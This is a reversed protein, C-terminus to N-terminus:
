SKIRLQKLAGVVAEAGYEKKLEMIESMFLNIRNGFPPCVNSQCINKVDGSLSKRRNSNWISYFSNNVTNGFAVAGQLTNHDCLYMNGDSGITAMFHQLYCGRDCTWDTHSNRKLADPSHISCVSFENPRHYDSKAKEMQSFAEKLWPTKKDYSASIDFKLRVMDAGADKVLGATKYIEHHNGEVIVYGINIKVGGGNAKRLYNLGKINDLVKDFTESDNIRGRLHYEKLPYFSEPGADLSIHVYDIKSLIEWTDGTMLTGNTFLGVKIGAKHLRKIARLTAEKQILPDGIFGSFKVTDLSKVGIHMELIGDVLTDINNKNILNPLNRIPNKSQIQEGICWTCALNCSSSTQIELEFPGLPKGLIFADLYQAKDFVLFREYNFPTSSDHKIVSNLKTLIKNQISM